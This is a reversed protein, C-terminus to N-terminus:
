TWILNLYDMLFVDIFTRMEDHIVQEIRDIHM